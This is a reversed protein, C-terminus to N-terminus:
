NFRMSQVIAKAKVLMANNHFTDIDFRDISLGQCHTVCANVYIYIFPNILKYNRTSISQGKAYTFSGTIVAYDIASPDENGYAFFSLNTTKRQSPTPNNYSVAESPSIALLSDDILGADYKLSLEIDAKGQVTQGSSTVFNSVPSTISINKNDADSFIHWDIPYDFELKMPESVYHQIESAPTDKAKSLDQSAVVTNSAGLNTTSADAKKSSPKKVLIAASASGMGLNLLVAVVILFNRKTHKKSNFTNETHHHDEVSQHEEATQHHSVDPAHVEPPSQTEHHPPTQEEPLM